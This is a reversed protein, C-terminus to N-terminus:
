AELDCLARPNNPKQADSTGRKPSKMSYSGAQDWADNLLLFPQWQQSAEAKQNRGAQGRVKQLIGPLETTERSGWRM